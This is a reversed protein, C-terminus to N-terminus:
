GRVRPTVAWSEPLVTVDDKSVASVQSSASDKSVDVFSPQGGSAPASSPTPS